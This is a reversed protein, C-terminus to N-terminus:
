PNTIMPIFNLYDASIISLPLGRIEATRPIKYVGHIHGYYCHVVGYKKMVDILPDCVFDGFAPPFHMYVLIKLNKNGTTEKLGIGYKLSAELRAAERKSIKEFDANNKSTDNKEDAFWGRTGCIVYDEVIYANNHLFRITTIENEDFFDQMKTVTSWWLDHNGKGIIKKGPLGDIFKFDELAEELKMAWSIDGPIVVTDDKGVVATWNKRIKEMYMSWRNGFVDMPKSSVTSLHLDAMSFISM